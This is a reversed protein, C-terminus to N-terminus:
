YVLYSHDHARNYKELSQLFEIGRLHQLLNRDRVPTCCFCPNQLGKGPTIVRPPMDGQNSQACLNVKVFKYNTTITQWVSRWLDGRGVNCRQQPSGRSDGHDSILRQLVPSPDRRRLLNPLLRVHPKPEINSSELEWDPILMFWCSVVKKEGLDTLKINGLGSTNSRGSAGWDWSKSPPSSHRRKEGQHPWLPWSVQCLTSIPSTMPYGFGEFQDFYLFVLSTAFSMPTEIGFLLIHSMSCIYYMMSYKALRDATLKKSNGNDRAARSKVWSLFPSPTACKSLNPQATLGM